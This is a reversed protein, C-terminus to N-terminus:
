LDLDSVNARLSIKSKISDFLSFMQREPIAYGRERLEEEILLGKRSELFVLKLGASVGLLSLGVTSGVPLRGVFASAVVLRGAFGSAGIWNSFVWMTKRRHSVLLAHDPITQLYRAYAGDDFTFTESIGTSKSIKHVTHLITQLMPHTELIDIPPFPNHEDIENPYYDAMTTTTSLQLSHDRTHYPVHM